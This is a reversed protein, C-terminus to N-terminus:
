HMIDQLVRCWSWGGAYRIETPSIYPYDAQVSVCRVWVRSCVAVGCTPAYRHRYILVAESLVHHFWLHSLPRFLCLLSSSIASVPTIICLFVTTCENIGVRAVPAHLSLDENEPNQWVISPNLSPAMLVELM